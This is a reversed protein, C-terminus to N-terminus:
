YNIRVGRNRLETVFAPTTTYQVADWGAAAAGAVHGPVDDVYFIEEPRVGALQTAAEFIRRDPKVLKLKYSLVIHEFAHPMLWYRDNSLFDFHMQSTNSLAGLRYGSEVLHGLVASMSYNLRFMDSGAVMLEEFSPRSGTERCFVEYAEESTLTGVDLQENLGGDYVIEWVRQPTTGALEAMQRAAQRHDFMLLVNGLDFYFFRPPM